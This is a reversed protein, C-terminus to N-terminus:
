SISGYHISTIPHQISRSSVSSVHSVDDSSNGFANMMSDRLREWFSKYELQEEPANFDFEATEVAENIRVYYVMVSGMGLFIIGLLTCTVPVIVITLSPIVPDVYSYADLVLVRKSIGNDVITLIDHPGELRFYWIIPFDCTEQLYYISTNPGCTENGTANYPGPMVQWCATWPGSGDCVMTVDMIKGSHVVLDDAKTYNFKSIPTRSELNARFVGTKM